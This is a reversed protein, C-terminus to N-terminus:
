TKIRVETYSLATLALINSNQNGDINISGFVVIKPTSMTQSRISKYKQKKKSFVVELDLRVEIATTATILIVIIFAPFPLLHFKM